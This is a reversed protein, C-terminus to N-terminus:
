FLYLCNIQNRLSFDTVQFYSKFAFFSCVILEARLYEHYDICNIGFIPVGLKYFDVLVVYFLLFVFVASVFLFIVGNLLYVAMKDMNLLTQNLNCCTSVTQQFSFIFLHNSFHFFVRIQDIFQINHAFLFVLEM